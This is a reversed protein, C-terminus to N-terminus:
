IQVNTREAPQALALTSYGPVDPSLSNRACLPVRRNIYCPLISKAIRLPVKRVSVSSVRLASTCSPFMGTSAGHVPPEGTVIVPDEKTGVPEGEKKFIEEIQEWTLESKGGGIPFRSGNLKISAPDLVFEFGLASFSIRGDSTCYVRVPPSSDTKFYVGQM